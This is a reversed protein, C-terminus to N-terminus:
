DAVDDMRDFIADFQARYISPDIGNEVNQLAQEALDVLERALVRRLERVQEATLAKCLKAAQKAMRVARAVDPDARPIHLEPVGDGILTPGKLRRKVRDIRADTNMPFTVVSVEWLDIEKLRRLGPSYCPYPGSPYSEGGEQEMEWVKCEYGISLGDIARKKLLVHAKRGLEIELLLQGECYLGHNDERMATWIGIPEWPDHQWLLKPMTGARRHEALSDAFAGPMVIDGGGDEVNFVSGYGAFTGDDRVDEAKVRIAKAQRPARAATEISDRPM